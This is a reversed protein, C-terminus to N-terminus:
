LANVEFATLHTNAVTYKGTAFVAFVCGVAKPHSDSKCAHFSENNSFLLTCVTVTAWPFCISCQSIQSVRIERSHYVSCSDFKSTHCNWRHDVASFNCSYRLVLM